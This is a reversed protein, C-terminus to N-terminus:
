CNLDIIDILEKPLLTILRNEAWLKPRFGYQVFHQLEHAFTMTLSTEDTCTSGHLYIGHDFVRRWEGSPSRDVFIFNTMYLPWPEKPRNEKIPWYYGRSATGYELKLEHWDEDDLFALLRLNPLRSGFEQVVRQAAVERKAKVVADYSKVNVTVTM